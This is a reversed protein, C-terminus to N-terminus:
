CRTPERESGRTVAPPRRCLGTVVDRADLSPLADPFAARDGASTSSLAETASFLYPCRVAGRAHSILTACGYRERVLM